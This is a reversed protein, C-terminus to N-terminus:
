SCSFFFIPFSYQMARSLLFETGLGDAITFFSKDAKLKSASGTTSGTAANSYTIASYFIFVLPQLMDCATKITLVLRKLDDDQDTTFSAMLKLKQQRNNDTESATSLPRTSSFTLVINEALIFISNLQMEEIKLNTYM